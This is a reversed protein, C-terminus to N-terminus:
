SVPEPLRLHSALQGLAVAAGRQDRWVFDLAIFDAGAAILPAIEAASNAYAVCPLEFLEAAWHVREVTAALDIDPGGFMLYDAGSEAASMADHRTALGSVGAIREPKLQALAGTFEDISTLHSGDAGGRAVLAANNELLLAADKNQVTATLAKVQNILGREDGDALRLLVAAVDAAELAASLEVNIAAADAVPPTILYLRPAPRPEATKPRSAM